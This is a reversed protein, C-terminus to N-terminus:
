PRPTPRRAADVLWGFLAPGTADHEPHWQVGLVPWPDPGMWECAEVLGDGARATVRWCPGPDTVVQAHLSSVESATGVLHSLLSDDDVEVPHGGEPLVHCADGLTVLRGGFAVTLVQLGRCVGLLPVGRAAALRALALEHADREVDIERAPGPDGGYRRPDVDGGGALVLADAVELADDPSGPPLVVPLGGAAAVADVYSRPTGTVTLEGWFRPVVYGAGVIGIVPASRSM